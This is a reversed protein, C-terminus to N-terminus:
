ADRYWYKSIKKKLALPVVHEACGAKFGLYKALNNIFSYLVWPAHGNKILYRLEESVYAKGEREINKAQELVGIKKYAVAIDFYRSFVDTIGHNHSHLVAAESSYAIKHGNMLLQKSMYMDECFLMDEQFPFRKLLDKRIAANANSFSFLKRSFEFGTDRDKTVNSEGYLWQVRFRNIPNTEKTPIHRGFAAGVLPDEIFPLTLYYLWNEDLPEADQSLYVLFEGSALRAGMNRMKSYGFDESFVSYLKLPYNKIIELTKDTSGSDIVIVEYDHEFNQSCAKNLCRQISAEGNKALIIISVKM